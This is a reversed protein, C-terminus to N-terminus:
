RDAGEAGPTANFALAAVGYVAVGLWFTTSISSFLSVVVALVSAFVSAAGNIGWFWPTLTGHSRSARGMGAAFPMGMVLGMPALLAVAVAVRAAIDSARFAALAPQTFLGAALLVGLLAALLRARRHPPVRQTIESGIGSAALLTSLVVALGYTPHGLFINLRQM